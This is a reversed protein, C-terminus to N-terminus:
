ASALAIAHAPQGYGRWERFTVIQGAHVGRIGQEVQFTIQISAVQDSTAVRVPEISVVKGSFIPGARHTLEKLDPPVVPSRYRSTARQHSCDLGAAVM